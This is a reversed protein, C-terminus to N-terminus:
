RLSVSRARSCYRFYMSSPPWSSRTLFSSFFTPDHVVDGGYVNELLFRGKQSEPRPGNQQVDEKEHEDTEHMKREVHFLRRRRDLDGENFDRWRGWGLGFSRGLGRGHELSLPQLRLRHLPFLNLRCRSRRVNRLRDLHGFDVRLRRGM